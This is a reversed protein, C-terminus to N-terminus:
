RKNGGERRGAKGGERRGAKSRPETEDSDFTAIHPSYLNSTTRVV